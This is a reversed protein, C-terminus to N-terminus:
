LSSIIIGSASQIIQASGSQLCLGTLLKKRCYRLISVSMLVRQSIIYIATREHNELCGDCIVNGDIEYYREDEYIPDGCDSCRLCQRPANHVEGGLREEEMASLAMPDDNRYVM